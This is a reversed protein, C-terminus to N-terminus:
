RKQRKNFEEVKEEAERRQRHPTRQPPPTTSIPRRPLPTSLATSPGPTAVGASGRLLAQSAATASALYRAKKDMPRVSAFLLGGDTSVLAAVAVMRGTRSHRTLDRQDMRQVPVFLLPRGNPLLVMVDVKFLRAFLFVELYGGTRQNGAAAEGVLATAYQDATQAQPSHSFFEHRRETTNFYHLIRQGIIQRLETHLTHRRSATYAPAKTSLPQGGAVLQDALASFLSYGDGEILVAQQHFRASILANIEAVKATALGRMPPSRLERLTAIVTGEMPSVGQPRTDNNLWYSTPYTKAVLESSTDLTSQWRSVDVGVTLKSLLYDRVVRDCLQRGIAVEDMRGLEAMVERASKEWDELDAIFSRLETLSGHSITPPAAATVSADDGSGDGDDDNDEDDGRDDGDPRDEHFRLSEERLFKIEAMRLLACGKGKKTTVIMKELRSVGRAVRDLVNNHLQKIVEMIAPRIAQKLDAKVNDLTAQGRWKNKNKKLLQDIVNSQLQRVHFAMKGSQFSDEGRAGSFLRRVVQHYQTLLSISAVGDLKAQFVPDALLHSYGTICEYMFKIRSIFLDRVQPFLDLLHQHLQDELVKLPLFNNCLYDFFISRLKFVRFNGRSERSLATTLNRATLKAKEKELLEEGAKVAKKILDEQREGFFRKVIGDLGTKWGQIKGQAEGDQNVSMQLFGQKKRNLILMEAGRSIDEVVKQEKGGVNTASDLLRQADRLLTTVVPEQRPSSESSQASSSESSAQTSPSVLRLITEACMRPVLCHILGVLDYGRCRDIIDEVRIDELRVDKAHLQQPTNFLLSSFLTPHIVLAKCRNNLVSIIHEDSLPDEKQRNISEMLENLKEKTKGIYGTDEAEKKEQMLEYATSARNSEFYHLVALRGPRDPDFLVDRIFVTDELAELTKSDAPLSKGAHPLVLLTDAAAIGDWTMQQNIPDDDNTGPMDIITSNPSVIRAPVYVTIRKIAYSAESCMLVEHLQDRVYCRDADICEEGSAKWGLGAFVDVKGLKSVIQSGLVVDEASAPPSVLTVEQLTYTGNVLVKAKKTNSGKPDMKLTDAKIGTLNEFRAKAVGSSLTDAAKADSAKQAIFSFAHSKAEEETLYEVMFHFVLGRKVRIVCKTTVGDGAVSPLLYPKIKGVGVVEKFYDVIKNEYAQLEREVVEKREREKVEEEKQVAVRLNAPLVFPPSNAKKQERLDAIAELVYQRPKKRRETIKTLFILLNILFSKGTCM